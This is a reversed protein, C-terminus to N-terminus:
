KKNLKNQIELLEERTYNKGQYYLTSIREPIELTKFFYIDNKNMLDFTM